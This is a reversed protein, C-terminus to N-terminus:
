KQFYKLAPNSKNDTVSTPAVKNMKVPEVVPENAKALEAKLQEIELQLDAIQADKEAITATLEDILKQNEDVEPEKNAPDEGEKEEAFENEDPDKAPEVPEVETAPEATEGPEAVPKIETIVGEAVTIVMDETTYDGDTAPVIEGAEDEIFVEVGIEVDGNYILEAKDTLLTAFKMVLKALKILKANM